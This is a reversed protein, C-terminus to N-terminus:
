VRSVFLNGKIYFRWKKDLGRKIGIRRTAVIDFNELSPPEAVYLLKGKTLDWGNFRSDISMAQTLKGPGSTLDRLRAVGRNKRMVEIGELPELARILVAAPCGKPEAVINLCWNVGYALYIYALGPAEWMIYNRPTKGRYAHSAPDDIGRYAEVEVIKGVLFRGELERVLLKGLLSKAVDVAYREYFSRPLPTYKVYFSKGMVNNDKRL